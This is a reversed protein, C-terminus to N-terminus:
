SGVAAFVSSVGVTGSSGGLDLGETGRTSNGKLEEVFNDACKNKPGGLFVGAKDDDTSSFTLPSSAALTGILCCGTV